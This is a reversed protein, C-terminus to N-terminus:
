NKQRIMIGSNNPMIRAHKYIKRCSDTGTIYMCMMAKIQMRILVYTSQYYLRCIFLCSSVKHM